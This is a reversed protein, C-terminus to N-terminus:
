DEKREFGWLLNVARSPRRFSQIGFMGTIYEANAIKQRRRGEVVVPAEVGCGALRRHDM